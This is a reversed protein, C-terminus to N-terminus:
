LEPCTAQAVGSNRAAVVWLYETLDHQEAIQAKMPAYM